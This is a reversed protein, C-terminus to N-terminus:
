SKETTPKESSDDNALPNERTIWLRDASVDTFIIQVNDQEELLKAVKKLQDVDGRMLVAFNLPINVAKRFNSDVSLIEEKNNM